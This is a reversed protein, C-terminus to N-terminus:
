RRLNGRGGGPPPVAPPAIPPTPPAGGPQGGGQGSWMPAVGLAAPSIIRTYETGRDNPDNPRTTILSVRVLPPILNTQAWEDVWDQQRTDWFTFELRKVHEALILPHEREDQDFEMLLPAQRLTLQRSNDPGNELSFLVRRMNFGGFRGSRPFSDPLQAVFSLTASSGNETVFAYHRMNAAYMQAYTLSEELCRLTVRARQVEEAVTRGAKTARLIATWTAYIGALVLSLIGVALLVEVLTFARRSPNPRPNM